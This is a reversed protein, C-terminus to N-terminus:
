VGRVVEVEGGVEDMVRKWAGDYYVPDIEMGVATCRYKACAILSSGSGVHTDLIKQGPEAYKMLLWEYLAVPKQTPHIRKENLKKNGQQIRGEKISKGQMMGNWMYSFLRVSTFLDTAAIEANSYTSSGNVKDWVIRGPAFPYDFYNCGWVIYHKSVRILEDFYEKGPPIWHMKSPNYSRHVGTKSESCGYYHRREPGSFYPPDVIALDFYKDPYLRMGEMCDGHWLVIM